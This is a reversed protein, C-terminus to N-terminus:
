QLTNPCFADVVATIQAVSCCNKVCEFLARSGYFFLSFVFLYPGVFSSVMMKQGMCILVFM